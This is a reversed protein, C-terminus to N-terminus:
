FGYATGAPSAQEMGSSSYLGEEWRPQRVCRHVIRGAAQPLNSLDKM